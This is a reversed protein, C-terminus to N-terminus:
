RQEYIDQYGQPSMYNKTLKGIYIDWVFVDSCAESISM